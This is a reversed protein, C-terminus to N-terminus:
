PKNNWLDQDPSPQEGRLEKLKKRFNEERMLAEGILFAEVGCERLKLIDEHTNIGSESVLVRDRPVYPALRATTSLDTKFTKLDRNNVGIIRAGADLATEMEAEDHVEVLASMGLQYTLNLLEKLRDKGLVAVILLLADAGAVRSEYIQYDDFIFDKRLLPIRMNWRLGSLYELKGMFFKEETVISIAAAGSEFYGRAIEAPVFYERIMGKSPSARKVEAIIRIRDKTGGRYSIATEFDRAPPFTKLRDKLGELPYEEKAIELSLKKSEIIDDLIM